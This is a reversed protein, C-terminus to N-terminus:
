LPDRGRRRKRAVDELATTGEVKRKQGLHPREERTADSALSFSSLAEDDNLRGNQTPWRPLHPDAEQDEARQNRTAIADEVGDWQRHCQGSAGRRQPGGAITARTM